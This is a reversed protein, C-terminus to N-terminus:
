KGSGIGPCFLIIRVEAYPVSAFQTATRQYIALRNVKKTIKGVDKKVWSGSQQVIGLNNKSYIRINKNQM